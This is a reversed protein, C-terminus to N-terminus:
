EVHGRVEDEARVVVCSGYGIAIRIGIPPRHGHGPRVVASGADGHQELEGTGPSDIWGRAADVQCEEVTFIEALVAVSRPEESAGKAPHSVRVELPGRAGRDDDVHDALSVDAASCVDTGSAVGGGEPRMQLRPHRGKSEVAMETSGPPVEVVIVNKEVGGSDRSDQQEVWPVGFPM